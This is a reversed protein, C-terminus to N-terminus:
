GERRNDERKIAVAGRGGGREVLLRGDGHAPWPLWVSRSWTWKMAFDGWVVGRALELHQLSRGCAGVCVVFLAGLGFINRLAARRSRGTLLPRWAFLSVLQWRAGFCIWPKSVSVVNGGALVHTNGAEMNPENIHPFAARTGILVTNTQPSAM